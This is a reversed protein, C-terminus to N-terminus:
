LMSQHIGFLNEQDGEKLEFLDDPSTNILAGQFDYKFLVYKYEDILLKILNRPESDLERMLDPSYEFAIFPKHSTIISEAGQFVSLEAGETDVKIFKIKQNNKFAQSNEAFIQDLPSASVEFQIDAGTKGIGSIGSHSIPGQNFTLVKEESWVAKNIALFNGHNNNLGNLLQNRIVSRFNIPSAEISLVAGSDGVLENALFSFFGWNAGVDIFGDGKSLHKKMINVLGPEYTGELLIALGMFDFPDIHMYFHENTRIVRPSLLGSDKRVFERFKVRFRWKISEPMLRYLQILFEITKANSTTSM